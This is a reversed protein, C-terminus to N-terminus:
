LSSIVSMIEEYDPEVGPNPAYWKWRLTGFKDIVFVSRTAVSYGPIGFNNFVADYKTIVERHVDCLVPFSINNQKVFEGTPHPGDVTLGLVQTDHTNFQNLQNEFTCLEKTCVGTFAAPFFVLVVNKQGRFSSLSIEKFASSHLSFDPADVAVEPM